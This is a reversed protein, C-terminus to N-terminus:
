KGAKAAPVVKIIKYKAVWKRTGPLRTVYRNVIRRARRRTGVTFAAYGTGKDVVLWWHTRRKM